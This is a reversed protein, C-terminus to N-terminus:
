PKEREVPFSLLTLNLNSDVPAYSVDEPWEDDSDCEARRKPCVAEEPEPDPKRKRLGEMCREVIIRDKCSIEHEAM